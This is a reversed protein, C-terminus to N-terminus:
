SNKSGGLSWAQVMGPDKQMEIKRHSSAKLVGIRIFYL